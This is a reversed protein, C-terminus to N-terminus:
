KTFSSQKTKHSKTEVRINQKIQETIIKSIKRSMTEVTKHDVYQNLGDHFYALSTDMYNTQIIKRLIHKM